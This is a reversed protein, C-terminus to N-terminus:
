KKQGSQMQYNHKTASQGWNGMEIQDSMETNTSEISVRKHKKALQQQIQDLTKNKTELMFWSYTFGVMTALLYLTFNCYVGISKWIMIFIKIYVFSCIGGFVLIMSLAKARIRVPLLENTVLGPIWFLGIGYMFNHVMFILLPLQPARNDYLDYEHAWFWWSLAAQFVMTGLTSVIMFSKRGFLDVLSGSICIGAFICSNLICPIYKARIFSAPLLQAPYVLLPTYSSGRQIFTLLLGRMMSYRIAPDVLIDCYSVGKGVSVKMIANVEEQRLKVGRMRGMEYIAQDVNGSRILFYPSEPVSFLFPYLAAAIGGSIFAQTKYDLATSIVTEIITGLLFFANLISASRGRKVPNTLEALFTPGNLISFGFNIGALIQSLIFGSHSRYHCIIGWVVFHMWYFILLLKKKGYRDQMLATPVVILIQSLYSFSVAWSRQKPTLFYDAEHRRFKILATSPWAVAMGNVLSSFGVKM